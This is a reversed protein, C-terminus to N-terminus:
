GFVSALWIGGGLPITTALFILFSYSLVKSAKLGTMILLPIVAFPHIINTWQDGYAIGMVILAPDTGLLAAAELFAPGQVAWQAGGSPIFMNILGGSLFAIVPLTQASAIEAFYAAMNAVVGTNMMLGMIGAYLPYQLLTPIVARGAQLMVDTLNAASRALLLCLGLFTWNVINLDLQIGKEYFWYGIYFFLALGMATTPWRAHEITQAFGPTAEGPNPTESKHAQEALAPEIEEVADENPALRTAVFAVTVVTALITLLNATSLITETVPLVGGMMAQMPNGETAVLLPASASYGMHWVVFGSFAAGGLLPYHVKQGRKRFQIAIFRAMLGGLITGLPWAILCVVSTFIGAFAYAATATKPVGALKELLRPVPGIHALTFAFLITLCVQTIFSLLSSLGDGWAVVVEVPNAPTSLWAILMAVFTMLIGFAFPEPMYKEFARVVSVALRQM